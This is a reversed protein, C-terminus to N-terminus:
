VKDWGAMVKEFETMQSIVTLWINLIDEKVYEPMGEMAAVAKDRPSGSLLYPVSHKYAQSEVRSLALRVGEISNEVGLQRTADKYKDDLRDIFKQCYKDPLKLKRIDEYVYKM